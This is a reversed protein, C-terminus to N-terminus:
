VQQNPTNPSTNASSNDDTTITATNTEKTEESITQESFLADLGSKPQIDALLAEEKEKLSIKEYLIEKARQYVRLNFLNNQLEKQLQEKHQRNYQAKLKNIYNKEFNILHYNILQQKEEETWTVKTVNDPETDKFPNSPRKIRKKVEPKPIIANSKKAMRVKSGDELFRWATRTPEGTEPCILKVNSYHVPAEKMISYGAREESRKVNKKVLNCGDVVLRNKDRLVKKVVGRKGADKGTMIQVLDGRFIKFSKILNAKLAKEHLSPM